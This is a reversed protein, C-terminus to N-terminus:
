KGGKRKCNSIAHAMDIQSTGVIGNDAVAVCLDNIGKHNRYSLFM